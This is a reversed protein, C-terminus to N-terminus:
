AAPAAAGGGAGEGGAAGAPSARWGGPRVGARWSADSLDKFFYPVGHARAAKPPADLAHARALARATPPTVRRLAAAARAVGSPPRLTTPFASPRAPPPVGEPTKCQGRGRAGGGAAGGGRVEAWERAFEASADGAGPYGIESV